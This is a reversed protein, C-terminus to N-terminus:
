ALDEALSAVLSAPLTTKASYRPHEVVLEVTVESPKRQWLAKGQNLTEEKEAGDKDKTVLVIPHDLFDSYRRVLSRIRGAALRIDDLSVLVSEDVGTV